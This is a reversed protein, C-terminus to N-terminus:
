LRDSSSSSSLPSWLHQLFRDNDFPFAAVLSSAEMWQRQNVKALVKRLSAFHKKIEKQAFQAPPVRRLRPLKTERFHGWKPEEGAGSDRSETVLDQASVFPIPLSGLDRLQAELSLLIVRSFSVFLPLSWFLKEFAAIQRKTPKPSELVTKVGEELEKNIMTWMEDLSDVLMKFSTCVTLSLQDCDVNDFPFPTRRSSSSIVVSELVDIEHFHKEIIEEMLGEMNILAHDETTPTRFVLLKEPADEISYAEFQPLYLDILTRRKDAVSDIFRAAREVDSILLSKPHFKSQYSAAQRLIEDLVDDGTESNCGANHFSLGVLFVLAVHSPWLPIARTDLQFHALHDRVRPGALLQALDTILSFLSAPLDKFVLLNRTEGQGEPVGVDLTRSLFHDLITYYANSRAVLFDSSLSNSKVFMTRLLHEVLPFWM